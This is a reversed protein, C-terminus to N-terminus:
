NYQKLILVRLKLVRLILFIWCRWKLKQKKKMQYIKMIRHIKLTGIEHNLTENERPENPFYNYNSLRWANQIIQESISNMSSVAWEVMTLRTPPKTKEQDLGVSLM